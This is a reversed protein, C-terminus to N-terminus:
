AIIDAGAIFITEKASMFLLCKIDKNLAIEELKENLEKVTATNFKNAKSGPYDFTLIGIENEIIQFNFANKM